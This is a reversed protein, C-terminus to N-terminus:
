KVMEKVLPLGGTRVDRRLAERDLVGKTTHQAVLKALFDMQEEETVNTEKNKLTLAIETHIEALLDVTFSEISQLDRYYAAFDGGEKSRKTQEIYNSLVPLKELWNLALQDRVKFRVENCDLCQWEGDPFSMGNEKRTEYDDCVPIRNVFKGSGQKVSGGCSICIETEM